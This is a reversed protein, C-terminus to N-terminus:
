PSPLQLDVSVTPPIQGVPAFTFTVTASDRVVTDARMHSAVLYVTMTDPAPIVAPEQDRTLQVGFNGQGDSTGSGGIYYGRSLDTPL